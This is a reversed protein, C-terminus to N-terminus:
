RSPRCISTLRSMPSSEARRSRPWIGPGSRPSTTRRRCGAPLTWINAGCLGYVGTYNDEVLSAYTEMETILFAGIDENTQGRDMMNGIESATFEVVDMPRALYYETTRAMQATNNKWINLLNQKASMFLMHFQVVIFVAAIVMILVSIVVHRNRIIIKNPKSQKAM